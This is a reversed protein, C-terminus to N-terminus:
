NWTREKIHKGLKEIALHAEALYEDAMQFMHMMDPWVDLEANVHGAKLISLFRKVENIIIEKEGMQIYVDPFDELMEPLMYQPSVLPNTMNSSYTYMCGTRRMADPTLIEDKLKKDNYIPATESFDLWPSFLIVEKIKHRATDKLSLVLALALSAGSGDAGIIIEPSDSYLDKIVNKLDDLAAPFPFQPALRFEPLIIRTSSANAISACFERWSARSGGIFSGGHVYIMARNTAFVEPTLIDCKIGNIEKEECEVRNPLFVSSFTEEIKARFKEIESKPTFVLNKLKKIAAKRNNVM